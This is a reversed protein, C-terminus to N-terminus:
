FLVIHVDLANDREVEVFHQNRLRDFPWRKTGRPHSYGWTGAESRVKNQLGIWAKRQKMSLPGKVPEPVAREARRNSLVFGGPCLVGVIKM